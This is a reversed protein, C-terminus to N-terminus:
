FWQSKWVCIHQSDSLCSVLVPVVLIVSNLLEARRRRPSRYRMRARRRGRKSSYGPEPKLPERCVRPSGLGGGPKCWFLFFIFHKWFEPLWHFTLSSIALRLLVMFRFFFFSLVLCLFWHFLLFSLLLLSPSSPSTTPPLPGTVECSM